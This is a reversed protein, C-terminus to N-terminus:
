ALVEERDGAWPMFPPMPPGWPTCSPHAQWGGEVLQAGCCDYALDFGFPPDGTSYDWTDLTTVALECARRTKM